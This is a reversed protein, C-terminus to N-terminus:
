VEWLLIEIQTDNTLTETLSCSSPREIRHDQQHWDERIRYRSNTIQSVIKKSRVWRRGIYIDRSDLAWLFPNPAIKNQLTLLLFQSINTKKQMTETERLKMKRNSKTEQRKHQLNEEFTEHDKMLFFSAHFFITRLKRPRPSPCSALLLDDRDTGTM